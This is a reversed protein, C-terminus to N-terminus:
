FLRRLEAGLSSGTKRLTHDLFWGLVLVLGTVIVALM